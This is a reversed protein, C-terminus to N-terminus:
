FAHWFTCYMLEVLCWNFGSTQGQALIFLVTFLEGNSSQHKTLCLSESLQDCTQLYRGRCRTWHPCTCVRVCVSSCHCKPPSMKRTVNQRHGFGDDGLTFGIMGDDVSDHLRCRIRVCAYSRAWLYMHIYVCARMSMAHILWLQALNIWGATMCLSLYQLGSQPMIIARCSSFGQGKDVTKELWTIMPLPSKATGGSCM